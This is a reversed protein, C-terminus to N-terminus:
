WRVAREIEALLELLAYSPEISISGDANALHIAVTSPRNALAIVRDILDPREGMQLALVNLKVLADDLATTDFRFSTGNLAM